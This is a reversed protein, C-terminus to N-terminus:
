LRKINWPLLETGSLPQHNFVDRRYAESYRPLSCSQVCRNITTRM